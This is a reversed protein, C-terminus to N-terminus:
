KIKLRWKVCRMVICKCVSKLFSWEYILKIVEKLPSFYEDKM